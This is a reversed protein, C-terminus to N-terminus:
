LPPQRMQIQDGNVGDFFTVKLFAFLFGDLSKRNILTKGDREIAVGNNIKNALMESANEELYALVLEQERGQATLDLKM